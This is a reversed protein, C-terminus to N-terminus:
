KAAPATQKATTKTSCPVNERAEEVMHTVSSKVTSCTSKAWEAAKMSGRVACVAVPRLIGTKYLAYAAVGVLVVGATVATTSRLYLSM